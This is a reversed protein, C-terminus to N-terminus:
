ARDLDPRQEISRDGADCWAFSPDDSSANAWKWPGFREYTAGSDLNRCTVV